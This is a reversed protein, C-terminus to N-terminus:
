PKPVLMFVSPRGRAAWQFLTELVDQEPRNILFAEDTLRGRFMARFTDRALNASDETDQREAADEMEDSHLHYHRYSQLMGTLQERLEDM